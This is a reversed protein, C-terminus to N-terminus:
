TKSPRILSREVGGRVQSPTNGFHLKFRRSFYASDEFGCALAVDAIRLHGEVLLDAARRLRRALLFETFSQGTEKRLLHTLYNPSLCAADAALKLSLPEQLRLNIFQVVRRLAARRSARHAGHELASHVASEHATVAGAILTLLGGRLAPVAGLGRERNVHQLHEVLTQVPAFAEEPMVFNMQDQLLFPILEPAQEVAVDELDLADVAIHPLLFRQSFNLVVFRAQPAHEILHVRYPLVFSMTGRTFPWAAGGIQHRTGDTIAIQIQFHEHRHLHALPVRGHHDRIDFDLFDAREQM